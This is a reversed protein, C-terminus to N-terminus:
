KREWLDNEINCISPIFHTKVDNDSSEPKFCRTEREWRFSDILNSRGREISASSSITILSEGRGLIAALVGLAGENQRRGRRLQCESVSECSSSGRWGWRMSVNQRDLLGVKRLMLSYKWSKSRPLIPSPKCILWWSEFYILSEICYKNREISGDAHLLSIM